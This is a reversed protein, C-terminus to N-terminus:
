APVSTEFQKGDESCIFQIAQRGSMAADSRQRRTRGVPRGHLLNWGRCRRTVGFLMMRMTEEHAPFWLDRRALQGHLTRLEAAHGRRSSGGPRPYRSLHTRDPRHGPRGGTLQETDYLKRGYIHQWYNYPSKLMVEVASKGPPALRPDFCYHKVGLESRRLGAILPQEDLLYTAWHPEAALATVGLSVQVQSQIPLEGAYMNRIKNNVYCGGLWDFITARGDAASVVYDTRWESDDYLRVGVAQDNEVLIKEVQSKYHLQGGLAM